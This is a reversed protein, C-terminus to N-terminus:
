GMDEVYIVSDISALDRNIEDLSRRIDKERAMHTVFMLPATGDGILQRMSAISVNNRGLITAISGLVGPKDVATMRIFYRSRWNDEITVTNTTIYAPGQRGRAAAIMDSVVASATPYDGAGRGYFMLEGTAHGYMYVANLSGSVSAIPHTMPVFTPHVRVELADGERKSVALLKLAYGLEKGYSIDLADVTTIGRRFIGELPVHAHYALTSLIALKCSADIGEVDATPDPEAFGLKQAHSLAEAYSLGEDSMASLIYNTTGNIIGFMCDISNAQLSDTLTRIVPIAGCVGAEFFLGVNHRRATELLELWHTALALKNATVVSKGSELARRIYDYAPREGGLSEVILTIAPDNLIDDANTTLVGQPISLGRDKAADRVLVRKINFSVSERERIESEMQSLLRWVGGGINGLGLLGVNVSTM